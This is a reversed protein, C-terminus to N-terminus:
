TPAPPVAKAKIRDMFQEASRSSPKLRSHRSRSCQPCCRSHSCAIGAEALRGAVARRKPRWKRLVPRRRQEITRPATAHIMVLRAASVEERRPQVRPGPLNRHMRVLAGRCRSPSSRRSWDAARGHWHRHPIDGSAPRVILDDRMVQWAPESEGGMNEVTLLFKQRNRRVGLVAPLSIATAKRDVRVRMVARDLILCAAGDGAPDRRCWAKLDAGCNAANPQRRRQRGGLVLCPRGPRVAGRVPQQGRTARRRDPSRGQPDAARPAMRLKCGPEPCAPRWRGSPTRDTAAM